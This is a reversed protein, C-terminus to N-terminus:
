IRGGIVAGFGAELIPLVLFASSTLKKKAGRFMFLNTNMHHGHQNQITESTKLLIVVLKLFQV